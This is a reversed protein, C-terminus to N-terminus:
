EPTAADPPPPTPLVPAEGAPAEGAPAEGAAGENAPIVEAGRVATLRTEIAALDSAAIVLGSGRDTAQVRVADDTGAYFALTEERGEGGGLVATLRLEEAVPGEETFGTIQPGTLASLLNSVTTFAIEEGGRKWAGEERVLEVVGAGDELRARDVDWSDLSTLARSRWSEPTRLTDAVFGGAVVWAEPRGRLAVLTSDSSPLPLGVELVEEDEGHRLTIVARPADLGLGTRDVEDLTRQKELGLLRSLLSQVASSDALDDVPERLHWREGERVLRVTTGAATLVIGDVEDSELRFVKKVQEAREESSPLDREVFAIFSGLAVVVLFLILLTRPKM